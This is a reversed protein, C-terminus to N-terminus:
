PNISVNFRQTPHEADPPRWIDDVPEVWRRTQLGVLVAERVPVAAPPNAATQAVAAPACVACHSAAIVAVCCPQPQLCCGMLALASAGTAQWLLALLLVLKCATAWVAPMPSLRRAM